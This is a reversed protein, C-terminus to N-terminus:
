NHFLPLTGWKWDVPLSPRELSSNRARGFSADKSQLVINLGKIKWIDPKVSKWDGQVLLVQISSLKGVGSTDDRSFRVPDGPLRGPLDEGSIIWKIEGLAGVYWAWTPYDDALIGISTKLQKVAVEGKGEM